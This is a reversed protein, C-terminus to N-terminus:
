SQPQTDASALTQLYAHVAAVEDDTFHAFRGRAVRAMLDLERDGLAVGTSMLRAFEDLTYAAAIALAPTSGDPSGRLDGGHCM